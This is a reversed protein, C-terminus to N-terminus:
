THRRREGSVASNTPSIETRLVVPLSGGIRSVQAGDRGIVAPPAKVAAHLIQEDVVQHILLLLMISKSM